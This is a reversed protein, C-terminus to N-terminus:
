EQTSKSCKKPKKKNSKHRDIIIQNEISTLSHKGDGLTEIAKSIEGEKIDLM